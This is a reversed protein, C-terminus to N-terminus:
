TKIGRLPLHNKMDGLGESLDTFASKKVDDRLMQVVRDSTAIVPLM